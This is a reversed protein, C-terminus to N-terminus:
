KLMLFLGLIVLLVFVFKRILADPVLHAFRSTTLTVLIVLPIALVVLRLVEETVQGAVSITVVRFTTSLAFSGLLTARVINLDLPQRYMLYAIPAGGAGYMGGMIGGSAGVLIRTIKGSSQSFPSPKLMMLIGTFVIVFGLLKQLVLSSESSLYDLILVGVLIMPLMGLALWKIYTRDIFKHSKRLAVSANVLSILSVMAAAAQINVLGLVTVGGMIILGMAFGTLTQVMSGFAILALIYFATMDM